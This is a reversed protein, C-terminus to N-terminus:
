FDEKIGWGRMHALSTNKSAPPATKQLFFKLFKLHPSYFDKFGKDRKRKM